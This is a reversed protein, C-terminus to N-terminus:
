LLNIQLVYPYFGTDNKPMKICKIPVQGIKKVDLASNLFSYYSELHIPDDLNKIKVEGSNQIRNLSLCVKKFEEVFDRTYKEFLISKENESANIQKEIKNIFEQDQKLLGNVSIDM